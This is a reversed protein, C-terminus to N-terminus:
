RAGWFIGVLATFGVTTYHLFTYLREQQRDQSDVLELKTSRDNEFPLYIHHVSGMKKINYEDESLGKVKFEYRADVELKFKGLPVREVLEWQTDKDWRIRIEEQNNATFNFFYRRKGNVLLTYGSADPFMMVPFYDVEIYAFQDPGFDTFQFEDSRRGQSDQLIQLRRIQEREMQKPEEIEIEIGKLYSLLPVRAGEIRIRLPKFYTQIEEQKATASQSLPRNAASSDIHVSDFYADADAIRGARYYGQGLWFFAQNKESRCLHSARGKNIKHIAQRLKRQAETPNARLNLRAEDLLLRAEKNQCNQAISLQPGSVLGLACTVLAILGANKGKSISM